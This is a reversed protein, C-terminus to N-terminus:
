RLVHHLVCWLIAGWVCATMLFVFGRLVLSELPKETEDRVRERPESRRRDGPTPAFSHSAPRNLLRTLSEPLPRTPASM